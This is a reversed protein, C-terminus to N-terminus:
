AMRTSRALHCPNMALTRSDVFSHHWIKARGVMEESAFSLITLLGMGTGGRWLNLVVVVAKPSTRSVCAIWEARRRAM